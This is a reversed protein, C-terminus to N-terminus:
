SSVEEVIYEDGELCITHIDADPVCKEVVFALAADAIKAAAQYKDLISCDDIFTKNMQEDESDSGSEM